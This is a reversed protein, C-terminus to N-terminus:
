TSGLALDYSAKPKEGSSGDDKWETYNYEFKTFNLSLSESPRDGGSSMSYASIMANTMIIELYTNLQKEGTQVLHIKTTGGSAAKGVLAEQLLLPSTSDMLKTVTIESVNPASAERKASTGVPSSISRGAGFQVSGIEIWKEHGKATSEGKGKVTSAGYELYAAM